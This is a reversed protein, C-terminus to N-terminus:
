SSINPLQQQPRAIYINSVLSNTNSHTWADSGMLQGFITSLQLLQQHQQRQEASLTLRCLTQTCYTAAVSIGKVSPVITLANHAQQTLQSQWQVDAPEQNLIFEYHDALRQRREIILQRKTALDVSPSFIKDIDADNKQDDSDLVLALSNDIETREQQASNDETAQTNLALTEQAERSVVATTNSNISANAQALTLGPAFEHNANYLVLLVIGAVLSLLLGLKTKM